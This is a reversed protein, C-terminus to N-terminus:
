KLIDAGVARETATKLSELAYGATGKSGPIVTIAPLPADHYRAIEDEIECALEELIFIVAFEGGDAARRLAARASQADTAELVEFGLAAFAFVSHRDGIVAIKYM